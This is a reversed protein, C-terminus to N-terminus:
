EIELVEGKKSEWLNCLGHNEPLYFKNVICYRPRSPTEKTGMHIPMFWVCNSCRPPQKEFGVLAKRQTAIKKAIVTLGTKSDLFEGPIAHVGRPCNPQSSM